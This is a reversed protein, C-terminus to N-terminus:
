FSKSVFVLISNEAIPTQITLPGEFWELSSLDGMTSNTVFRHMTKVKKSNELPLHRYTGRKGDKFINIAMETNQAKFDFNFSKDFSFFCKIRNGNPERRLCNVLGLIGNPQTNLAYLALNNETKSLANKLSPFWKYEEDVEIYETTFSKM